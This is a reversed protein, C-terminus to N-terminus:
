TRDAVFLCTPIWMMIATALFFLGPGLGDGKGFILTALFLLVAFSTYGALLYVLFGDSGTGRWENIRALMWCAYTFTSASAAIVLVSLWHGIKNAPNEISMCAFASIVLVILSVVGIASSNEVVEAPTM